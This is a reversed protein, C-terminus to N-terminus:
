ERDYLWIDPIVTKKLIKLQRYIGPFRLIMQAKCEEKKDLLGRDDALIKKMKLERERYFISKDEGRLLMYLMQTRIRKLLSTRAGWYFPTDELDQCRKELAEESERVKREGAATVTSNERVRYHYFVRNIMKVKNTKLFLLHMVAIDEYIKREPFEIGEFLTRLFLKDWLYSCIIEDEILMKVAKERDPEDPPPLHEKDIKGFRKFGCMVICAGSNQAAHYMEEFMVTEIYDDSDVFGIYKGDAKRLGANRASAQGANGQHIVKFRGDKEAFADCITGSQDSSGDDILIVELNHYTQNQISLLCKELYLEANYVPVIVSILDEAM